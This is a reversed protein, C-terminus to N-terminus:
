VSIERNFPLFIIFRTGKGADSEVYIYGRHNDVIQHVIPLGLGTGTNKTTFFPTFIDKLSEKSIGEGTDSVVIKISETLFKRQLYSMKNYIGAPIRELREVSISLVGEKDMSEISNLFLNLMMQQLLNPDAPISEVNPDIYEQYLIKKESLTKEILPKVDSLTSRIDVDEITPREPRSYLFLAQLLTNLRNVQRVIREVYESKDHGEDKLKTELAQAVSKIGALPNRIEHAIGSVLVGLSALRDMRLMEKERLLFSSIDRLTIVRGIPQNMFNLHIQSSFGIIKPEGNPMNLEVEFRKAGQMDESQQFFGESLVEPGFINAFNEDKLESYKKEIIRESAKNMYIIQNYHNLIIVGFMVSDLISHLFELKANVHTVFPSALDNVSGDATANKFIEANHLEKAFFNAAIQTFSRDLLSFYKGTIKNIVVFIGYLKQELLIPVLILSFIQTGLAKELELIFAEEKNDSKEWLQIQFNQATPALFSDDFQFAAKQSDANPSVQTAELVLEKDESSFRLLIATEAGLGDSLRRLFMGIRKNIQEDPTIVYPAFAPIAQSLFDNLRQLQRDYTNLSDQFSSLKINLERYKILKGLRWVLEGFEYPVYLIDALDFADYLLTAEPSAKQLIFLLPIRRTRVIERLQDIQQNFNDPFKDISVIIVNILNKEITAFLDADFAAEFLSFDGSRNLLDITSEREQSKGVWLLNNKTLSPTTKTM